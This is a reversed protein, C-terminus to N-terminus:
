LKDFKKYPPFTVDVGIPKWRYEPPICACCMSREKCTECYDGSDTNYIKKRKAKPNLEIDPVKTGCFPCSSVPMPSEFEHDPLDKYQFIAKICWEPKRKSLLTEDFSSDTRKSPFALHPIKHLTSQECCGPTVRHYLEFM